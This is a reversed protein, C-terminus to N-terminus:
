QKFEVFFPKEVFYKTENMEWNAKLYYEGKILKDKQIVMRGDKNLTLPLLLDKNQASPRYLKLSGEMNQNICEAPFNIFLFDATEQVTVPASLEAANHAAAMQDNVKLEQAYYNEEAMEFTVNMSKYVLFLMSSAAIIIAIAIGTGWNWFGYPRNKIEKKM